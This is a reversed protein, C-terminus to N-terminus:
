VAMKRVSLVCVGYGLPYAQSDIGHHRAKPERHVALPLDGFEGVLKLEGIAFCPCAPLKRSALRLPRLQEDVAGTRKDPEFLRISAIPM